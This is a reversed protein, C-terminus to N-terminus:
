PPPLTEYTFEVFPDYPQTTACRLGLFSLGPDLMQLTLMRYQVGGPVHLSLIATEDGEPKITPKVVYGTSPDTLRVRGGDKGGGVLLECQGLVPVDLAATADRSEWGFTGFGRMERLKWEGFYVGGLKAIEHPFVVQGAADRYFPENIAPQLQGIENRALNAQYTVFTASPDAVHDRPETCLQLGQTAIDQGIMKAKSPVLALSAYGHAALMADWWWDATLFHEGGRFAWFEALDVGALQSFVLRNETTFPTRFTNLILRAAERTLVIMGAGLNHM